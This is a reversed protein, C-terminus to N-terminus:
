YTLLPVLYKEYQMLLGIISFHYSVMPVGWLGGLGALFNANPKIEDFNRMVYRGSDDFLASDDSTPKNVPVLFSHSSLIEYFITCTVGFVLFFLVFRLFKGTWSKMESDHRPYKLSNDPQKFANTMEIDAENADQRVGQYSM